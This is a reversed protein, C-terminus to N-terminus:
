FYWGADTTSFNTVLAVHIMSSDLGYEGYEEVEMFTRPSHHLTQMKECARVETRGQTVGLFAFNLMEGLIVSATSHPTVGKHGM